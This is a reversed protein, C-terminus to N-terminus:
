LRYNHSWNRRYQQQNQPRVYSSSQFHSSKNTNSKNQNFRAIDKYTIKTNGGCDGDICNWSKWRLLEVTQRFDM